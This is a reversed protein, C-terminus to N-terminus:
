TPGAGEESGTLEFYIEELSSSVPALESIVVANAAIVRGIDEGTRDRVMLGSGDDTVSAGDARLLEALRGVDPGAVRVGGGGRAMLEALPSQVISRGKHIVV